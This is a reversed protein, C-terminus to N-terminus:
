STRWSSPPVSCRSTTLTLTRSPTPAPTPTLTLTLTLNLTLPQTLPLTLALTIAGGPPRRSIASISPSLPLYLSISPSLPLYFVEQLAASPTPLPQEKSDIDDLRTDKIFLCLWACVEAQSLQPLWGDAIITGM